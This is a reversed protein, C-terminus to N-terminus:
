NLAPVDITPPLQLAITMTAAQSDLKGDDVKYQRACWL